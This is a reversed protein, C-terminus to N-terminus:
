LKRALFLARGPALEYSELSRRVQVTFGLQRVRRAIEAARYLQVHHTEDRRRYGSGRRRFTTIERRLWAGSSEKTNRSVLFWDDGERVYTAQAAVRDTVLDFILLGGRPLARAIRQLATMMAGTGGRRDPRYGLCEGLSLVATADPVPFDFISGHEFRAAPVRKRALRLLAASQDVGIVDYGAEALRRATVGGGCGLEVVLGTSLRATRLAAIVGPATGEAHHSFGSDHIYALDDGYLEDTM